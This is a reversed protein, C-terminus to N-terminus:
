EAAEKDYFICLKYQFPTSMPSNLDTNLYVNLSDLEGKLVYYTNGFPTYSKCNSDATGTSLTFLANNEFGKVYIYSNYRNGWFMVQIKDFDDVVATIDPLKKLNSYPTSTIETYALGRISESVEGGGAVIALIANSMEAPKYTDTFGTKERIADAISSLTSDNVLVKAM